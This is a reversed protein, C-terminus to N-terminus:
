GRSSDPAKTALDNSNAVANTFFNEELWARLIREVLGCPSMGRAAACAIIRDYVEERLALSRTKEPNMSFHRLWNNGAIYKGIAIIEFGRESFFGNKKM